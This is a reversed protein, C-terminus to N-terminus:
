KNKLHSMVKDARGNFRNILRTLSMQSLFLGVIVIIIGIWKVINLAEGFVIWVVLATIGPMVNCFANARTVGIKRVVQCFLIYSIVSAFVALAVISIVSSPLVNTMNLNDLDFILFTPIFFCLSFAHVYFVISVNSYHSPIKRLFISYMVASVVAGFLLFVGLLDVVIKDKEVVLFMVGLLSVFIGIINMLTVKERLLVFAFLPAFLPITSLVVSALTASVRTLGYAECVFYCFPQVFGAALFLLIDQKDIKQLKRTISGYIALLIAALSMRIVLLTLPTFSLLAQQTLLFSSAWVTMATMIAVYAWFNNKM